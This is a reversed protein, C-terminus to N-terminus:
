NSSHNIFYHITEQQKRISGSVLRPFVQNIRAFLKEPWGIWKAATEQELMQVVHEAVVQPSDSRNGLKQNLEVVRPSNLETETTRPALYLVRIAAGDLERDLAESFRHLGAKSACYATYGPYGISGLTSGINLIVGPRKLWGLASQSLAIPTMLNLQMEREISEASRQALFQFQNSGANNILASIQKNKRLQEKAYSNM